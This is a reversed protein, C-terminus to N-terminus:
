KTAQEDFYFTTITLSFSITEEYEESLLEQEAPKSFTVQEVRNIRQLNEIEKLFKQFHAFDPSEVSLSITLLKVNEPKNIDDALESVPAENTEEGNSSLDSERGQENTEDDTAEEDAEGVNTSEDNRILEESNSLTGDYTNFSISQIQSGSVLEVEQLSLLIEDINRALPMQRELLMTNEEQSTPAKVLQAELIRIDTEITKVKTESISIDDNLPKIVYIYVVGLLLFLITTIFLVASKKEQIFNSM